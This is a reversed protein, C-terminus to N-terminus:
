MCSSHSMSRVASTAAHARCRRGRGLTGIRRRDHAQARGVPFALRQERRVPDPEEVKEGVTGLRGVFDSGAQLEIRAAGPEKQPGQDAQAKERFVGSAEGVCRDSRHEEDLATGREHAVRDAVAVLEVGGPAIEFAGQAGALGGQGCLGVEAVVGHARPGEHLRHVLAREADRASTPM